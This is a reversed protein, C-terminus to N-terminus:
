TAHHYCGASSQLAGESVLRDSLFMAAGSRIGDSGAIELCSRGVSNVSPAKRFVDSRGSGHLLAELLDEDQSSSSGYSWRRLEHRVLPGWV